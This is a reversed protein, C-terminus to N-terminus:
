QRVLAKRSWAFPDLLPNRAFHVPANKVGASTQSIKASQGGAMLSLLLTIVAAQFLRNLM